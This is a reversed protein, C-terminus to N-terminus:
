AASNSGRLLKPERVAKEYEQRKMFPWVEFDGSAQWKRDSYEPIKGLSIITALLRSLGTCPHSPWKYEYDSHLFVIFRAIQRKDKRTVAHHGTLKHEHLDSYLHWAQELIAKCGDDNTSIPISAEFQDNSIQGSVLHRLLEALKDRAQRDIM